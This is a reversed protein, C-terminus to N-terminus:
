EGKVYSMICARIQRVLLEKKGFCGTLVVHITGDAAECLGSVRLSRGELLVGLVRWV